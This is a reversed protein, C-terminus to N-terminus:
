GLSPSLSLVLSLSRSLSLSLSTKRLLSLFLSVAEMGTLKRGDMSQALDECCLYCPFVLACLYSACTVGDSRSTTFNLMLCDFPGEIVRLCGLLPLVPLGCRVLVVHVDRWRQLPSKKHALYGQINHAELPSACRERLLQSVVRLLVCRRPNVRSQYYIALCGTDAGCM